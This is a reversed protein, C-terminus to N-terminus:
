KSFLEGLDFVQPAFGANNTRKRRFISSTTNRTDKPRHARARQQAFLWVCLPSCLVLL